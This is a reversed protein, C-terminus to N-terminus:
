KAVEKSRSPQKQRMIIYQLAEAKLTPNTIGHAAQAAEDFLGRDALLLTVTRTSKNRYSESDIKKLTKLAAPADPREAQIEAMEGFAKHRLAENTMSAATTSAADDQKAFAQAMSIYTYAIERSPEHSIGAAKEALIKFLEAYTESTLNLEAAAMGIGRITMAKTDPNEIKDILAIAESTKGEEAYSKALERYSIDRWKSETIAATTTALEALLCARDSGACAPTPEAALVPFAVPWLLLVTFFHRIM